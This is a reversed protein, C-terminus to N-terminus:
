AVEATEVKPYDGALIKDFTGSNVWKELEQARAVPFPHTMHWNMLYFLLAKGLQDLGDMNSYARAQDMFAERNVEGSMRNPGATMSILSDISDNLSQSVILGARDASYEAQRVWEYFAVILAWSAVDSTGLTKRGLADLLGLLISGVQFYLVHEAKIHGLEHGILYYLQDDSLTEVMSCHVTVYPREVGGAFANPWPNSSIYLEPEPMDLIRCSEQFIGYLTPYQKPGCRVSMAMNMCYAWRDFGIDHFKRLVLPLLPVKKLKELAWRDADSTFAEATIGPY